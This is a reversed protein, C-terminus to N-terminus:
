LGTNHPPPIGQGLIEGTVADIITVTIKRNVNSRVVWCPYKPPSNIPLVKSEPSIIYLAASVNQGNVMSEAQEKSVTLNSHESLDDRWHVERKLLVKTTKDFQLLIFDGEVIASDITRQHWYVIKDGIELKEYKMNGTEYRGLLIDDKPTVMTGVSLFGAIIILDLLMSIGKM